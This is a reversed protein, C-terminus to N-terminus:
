DLGRDSSRSFDPHPLIFGNDRSFFVISEDTKHIFLRCGPKEPSELERLSIEQYQQRYKHPQRGRKTRDAKDLQDLKEVIQETIKIQNLRINDLSVNKSVTSSM